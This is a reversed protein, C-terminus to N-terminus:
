QRAQFASRNNMERERERERERKERIGGAIKESVTEGRSWIEQLLYLM